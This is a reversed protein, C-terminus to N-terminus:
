PREHLFWRDCSMLERAHDRLSIGPLLTTCPAIATQEWALEFAEQLNEPKKNVIFQLMTGYHCVLEAGYRDHWQKLFAVVIDSGVGEAGFWHIYAVTEWCNATPLLILALSQNADAEYWGLYGDEAEQPQDTGIDHAIESELMWKELEVTSRLEGKDVLAQLQSRISSVDLPESVRELEYEIEEKLAQPDSEERQNKAEQELFTSLNVGASRSIIEEPTYSDPPHQSTEYQFPQRDLFHSQVIDSQWDQHQFNWSTVVVPWRQTVSLHSRLLQWAELIETPNIQIALAAHENDPVKLEIIERKELFTNKLLTALEDTTNIMTIGDPVWNKNTSLAQVRRHLM